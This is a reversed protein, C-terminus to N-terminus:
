RVRAVRRDIGDAKVAWAALRPGFLHDLGFPRPGDPAAGAEGEVGIIELYAGGGLDLLANCTGLGPHRGGPTPRVGLAVAVWEVAADLDPTAYVMHDIVSQVRSRVAASPSRRHGARRRCFRAM